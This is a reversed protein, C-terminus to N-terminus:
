EGSPQIRHHVPLGKENRIWELWAAPIGTGPPLVFTITRPDTTCHFILENMTNTRAPFTERYEVAQCQLGTMDVHPFVERILDGISKSRHSPTIAPHPIYIVSPVYM